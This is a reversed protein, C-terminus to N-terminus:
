SKIQEIYYRFKVRMYLTMGLNKIQEIYDNLKQYTNLITVELLLVYLTIRCEPVAEEAKREPSRLRLSM